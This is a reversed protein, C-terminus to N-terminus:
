ITELIYKIENKLYPVSLKYFTDYESYLVILYMEGINIGYNEELIYRYLSQQLTYRNYSTDDIKNLEGIGSQWQNCTIPSGNYTNIIKKSRKWDYIDFTNESNKALLDITGAINYKEDFVRWETRYPELNSHESLFMKFLDSEETESYKEGLYYNEIQEHLFTGKDRAIRGKEAWMEAVEVATMGLEPAKRNSWYCSDFEPFFKSIITSASPAPVGDITYIHPESYFKIRKDRNHLNTKNFSINKGRDAIGILTPSVLKEEEMEQKTFDREITESQEDVPSFTHNLYTERYKEKEWKQAQVIDWLVENKINKIREFVSSIQFSNDISNIVAAIFKLCEREQTHVQYESFRIVIWGRDKFYNDRNIDDGKCHTPQRTIGAYPEDIEVDIRINKNTSCIIAIDPEYPRNKEGTNLRVNGSVQFESFVSAISREFNEDKFGRRKTTGYRYTRVICNQKPFRLVPYSSGNESISSYYNVFKHEVTKNEQEVKAKPLNKETKKKIGPETPKVIVEKQNAVWDKGITSPNKRSTHHNKTSSEKKIVVDKTSKAGESNDKKINEKLTSEYDESDITDLFDGKEAILLGLFVFIWMTTGEVPGVDLGEVMMYIFAIAPILVFMCGLKNKNEM